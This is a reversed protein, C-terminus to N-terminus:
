TKKYEIKVITGSKLGSLSKALCLSGATANRHPADLTHIASPMDVNTNNCQDKKKTLGIRM